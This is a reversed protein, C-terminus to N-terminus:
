HFLDVHLLDVYVGYFKNSPVKISFPSKTAYGKSTFRGPSPNGSPATAYDQIKVNGSVENFFWGPNLTITITVKGDGDVASFAVSGAAMTQGAYLTVERGATYTSYTAWNGKQTYRTGAAWGGEGKFADKLLIECGGNGDFAM